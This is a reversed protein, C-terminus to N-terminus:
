KSRTIYKLAAQLQEDRKTKPNNVVVINPEIGKHNIDTGNPTLYVATTLKLGSGDGLDVITQVLGKGFTRTGIIEARKHDKLAGTVIEAASASDGNVLVVMPKSTVVPDKAQFVELPSHLGKTSTVVGQEFINTVDVAETLLGGPNYRMDLIFWQAGKAALSTINQTVDRSAYGGFQYLQVYGVKTGKDHIMRSSTEPIEIRQRTATVTKAPPKGGPLVELTVQTGEKGKILPVSVDIGLGSIPKGNVATITDGPKLGAKKAPSGPFVQTVTLGKATKNLSAGIGYYQGSETESFAQMEKPDLYVTWPDNLSKLTANVGATSLKNVDVPRYYRGQLEEIIRQQLEGAQKASSRQSSSLSTVNEGHLYWGVFYGGLFGLAVVLVVITTRLARV